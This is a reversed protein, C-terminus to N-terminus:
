QSLKYKKIVSNIQHDDLPEEYLLEHLENAFKLTLVYDVQNCIQNRLRHNIQNNSMITGGGALQYQQSVADMMLKVQDNAKQYRQVKTIPENVILDPIGGIMELRTGYNYKHLQKTYHNAYFIISPSTLGASPVFHVDKGIFGFALNHHTSNERIIQEVAKIQRHWLIPGKLRKSLYQIAKDEFKYTEGNTTLIECGFELQRVAVIERLDPKRIINM